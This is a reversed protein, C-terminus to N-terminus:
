PTHAAQWATIGGALHRVDPRGTHALHRAARESRVGSACHVVVPRDRPIDATGDLVTALPHHVAGPITGLALEAPERVDVLLVAGARLLDDLEHADIKPVPPAAPPPPPAVLVTTPTRAPDPHLRLERWTAALADHVLLRGVLPDGTGTVLKITETGMVGGITACLTGFVGALACSPVADPDPPDPFVDRYLPGHGPWFVSVQGTFRLIAGWVTPIGLIECADAVVYRTAFNDSGDVVVDHGRLMELANTHDIRRRETRVQVTPDIRHVADRASEVKPRGVDPTGHAVQRQLNSTDVTDDDVVTLHGVGAAALYLLAPSGLGGAGVVLVRAARLRRQGDVGIGPLVVHRGYRLTEDTTLDPGPEVLPPHRRSM